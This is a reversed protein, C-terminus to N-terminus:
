NEDVAEKYFIGGVCDRLLNKKRIRMLRIKRGVWLLWASRTVLVVLWVDRMSRGREKVCWSENSMRRLSGRHNIRAHPEQQSDVTVFRARHIRCAHYRGNTSGHEVRDSFLPMRNSRQGDVQNVSKAPRQRTANAFGVILIFTWWEILSNSACHTERAYHEIEFRKWKKVRKM